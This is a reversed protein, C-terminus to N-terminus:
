RFGRFHLQRLEHFSGMGRRRGPEVVEVEYHACENGFGFGDCLDLASSNARADAVLVVSLPRGIWLSLGELLSKAARRDAAAGPPPLCARLLEHSGMHLLIRTQDRSPRIICYPRLM